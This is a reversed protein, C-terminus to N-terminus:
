FGYKVSLNPLVPFISVKRAEANPLLPNDLIYIYYTNKRNYVNYVGFSVDLRSKQDFEKTYNMQIDLHQFPPYQFNNRRDTTLPKIEFVSSFQEIALSFFGGSGHVFHGSVSYHDNIKWKLGINIDHTRDYKYPFEMGKNIHEFKRTSRGYGYSAWGTIDGKTKQLLVEIGKAIGVGQEVHNKWEGDENIIPPLNSNVVSFFIDEPSSYDILNYMVKWYGGMKLSITKSIKTDFNLSLQHSEQPLIDDTSPAWLDTPLGIGPNVLLHLYQNMKSYSIGFRYKPQASYNIKIRPQLRNYTTSGSVFRSYHVGAYVQWDPDPRYTDEFFGYLETALVVNDKNNSISDLVGNVIETTHKVGQLYRHDIIGSGFKIRHHDNHYYDSQINFVFDGISTLSVVDVEQRTLLQDSLSEFNFSGRSSFRYDLGGIMAKLTLKDSLIDSYTLAALRTGWKLKNENSFYFSTNGDDRKQDKSILFHDGGSYITLSLKNSSSFRHTIKGIIDYYDVGVKNFAVFPKILPNLYAGIYSKRTAFNFTTKSGWLPGELFFKGGPLSLGAGGHLIKNNGEKLKVDMVSSLRGGYRAPFGDKIFDVSHISERVFMSSLGATHNVEYLPIGELIVMNQEKGGGRVIIGFQGEDGSQVGPDTRIADMIDNEGSLSTYGSFDDIKVKQGGSGINFNDNIDDQITVPDITNDFELGINLIQDKDDEIDKTKYGLYNAVLHHNKRLVEISFFGESNTFVARNTIKDEVIAGVLVEGSVADHIKGRITMQESPLPDLFVILIKDREVLIDIRQGSFLQQLFSEVKMVKNEFVIEENMDVRGSNFGLVKGTRDQFENIHHRFTGIRIDVEYKQNLIADQGQLVISCVCFIICSIILRLSM